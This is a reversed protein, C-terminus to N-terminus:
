RRQHRRTRLCIRFTGYNPVEDYASIKYSYRTGDVLGTDNYYNVTRTTLVTYTTATINRWVRYGMCDGSIANWSIDLKNGDIKVLVIVGTVQTPPTTDQPTKSAEDSPTGLNPVEDLARVRYYYTIGDTLGTDNYWNQQATISAIQTTIDAPFGSTTSRYVRYSVCDFVGTINIWQLNLANGTKVVIITLGTVKPPAVTDSPVGSKETSNFGYNPVEDYASIKYWYTVGDTLGTNNYTTLATNTVTIYSGFQSLSRYIRYGAVDPASSATWTLSLANGTPIVTITLGTVQPPAVTDRPVGFVPTSNTGYNPVEDYASIKYLYRTGDQLGTDNYYNVTRTTVLMYTTLTNNRWVRYGAVDADAPVNWSIDLKNGDPKVLVVVGTVQAPAQTDKPVNSVPTSNTGYNPVEDYASIKYSYRTGDVLGTDNYYNVTRTTVLTYTTITINRWVRYGAVDGGSAPTWSVDLKNGEIKVRVQVGTVQSPAVTDHPTGSAEDSPTGLNVEDLARVRYYYTTGDILGAGLNTDNYYNQSISVNALRTTVDAPFGPTTSRYVRYVALDPVGTINIWQLNLANGTKVVTITLGTVKPPAVTDSPVGSNETSNLGYNPVEDYASIKYWYTVGDILGTNNYTTLATNTVTIYSGFQTLSRYIRYGVVDPASSATWTLSLTNGTPIVTITLGTM